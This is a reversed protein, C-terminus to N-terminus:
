RKSRLVRFRLRAPTPDRNGAADVARVRFLHKGPRLRKYTKPSRCPRFSKRDLSCQFRSGPESAFFRFTATRAHTRAAPRKGIRTEPPTRDATDGSGTPPAPTTSQAAAVPPPVTALALESTGRTVGTQSAALWAGAPLPEPYAFSWAGTAGAVVQGLFSSIEGPAGTAKSFVRVKAGPRANGSLGAETVSSVVPPQIGDNPGQPESGPNAAVLDVFSGGNGAGRNRAVENQTAELDVIEIAPGAAGSIQNEAAALNAGILNGTPAAGSAARISIGAGGADTVENGTVTNGDNQLLIGNGSTEKVENGYISNGGPALQTRIGTAGGSIANGTITGGTASVSIATGGAMRLFNEAVTPAAAPSVGASDVAIGALSPPPLTRTHLDQGFLNSGVELHAAGPGAGVGREGGAFVNLDETTSGGISVEDASGVFIGDAANAVAGGLMANAGIYNGRITTPGTAPSEAGGDGNLDIGDTLSGGILNCAGDCEATFLSTGLLTGGIENGEAAVAGADTVEIDTGNPAASLGGATVGFYNGQVTAESAGFLDLADNTINAFLNRGPTSYSGITAEDADPGLLVGTGDPGPTGDLKVGFWDRAASFDTSGAKVEIGVSVGTVAFSEITVGDGDVVFGTGDLGACPRPVLGSLGCAYADIKVADTVVPLPTAPTITAAPTGDFVSPDFQISDEVGISLNSEQIAARLTCSGVSTKCGEIGPAADPQDGTSTILYSAASASAPISLALASALAAFCALLSCAGWSGRGGVRGGM